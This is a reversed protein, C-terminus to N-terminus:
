EEGVTKGGRKKRGGDRVVRKQQAVLLGRLVAYFEERVEADGGGRVKGGAGVTEVFADSLRVVDLAADARGRAVGVAELWPFADQYFREAVQQTNGSM